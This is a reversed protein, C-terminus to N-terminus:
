LSSPARSRALATHLIPHRHQSPSSQPSALPFGPRHRHGWPPSSTRRLPQTIRGAGETLSPLKACPFRYFSLLTKASHQRQTQPQPSMFGGQTLSGTKFDPIFPAQEPSRLGRPLARTGWLPGRLQGERLVGDRARPTVTVYSSCSPNRPLSNSM